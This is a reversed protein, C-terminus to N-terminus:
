GNEMERNNYAQAIIMAVADIDVGALDGVIQSEIVLNEGDIVMHKKARM